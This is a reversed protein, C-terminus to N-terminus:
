KETNQVEQFQERIERMKEAETEPYFVSLIEEKPMGAEMMHHLEEKQEVSYQWQAMRNTLTDEGDPKKRKIPTKNQKEANRDNGKTEEEAKKKQGQKLFQKKRDLNTLLSFEEYDLSDIYVPVGKKKLNEFYALSKKTLM